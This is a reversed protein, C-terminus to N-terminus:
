VWATKCFLLNQQKKLLGPGPVICLLEFTLLPSSKFQKTIFNMKDLPSFIVVIFNALENVMQLNSVINDWTHDDFVKDHAMGLTSTPPDIIVLALYLITHHFNSTYM